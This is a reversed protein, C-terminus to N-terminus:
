LWKNECGISYMQSVVIGLFTLPVTTARKILKALIRTEGFEAMLEGALENKDKDAPANELADVFHSRLEALVDPRAYAPRVRRSIRKLYQEVIEPLDRSKSEDPM